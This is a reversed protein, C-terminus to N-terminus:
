DENSASICTLYRNNHFSTQEFPPQECRTDTVAVRPVSAVPEFTGRGLQDTNVEYVDGEANLALGTTGHSDIGVYDFAVYFQQGARLASQACTIARNPDELHRVHGCDRSFWGAIKRLKRIEVQEAAPPPWLRMALARAEIGFYRNVFLASCSFFVAFGLVAWALPLLKVSVSPSL